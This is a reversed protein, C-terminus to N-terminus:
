IGGAFPNNTRTVSVEDEWREGNLWTSPHPIYQPDKWHPKQQEISHLMKKLLDDTPKLKDFVKKAFGKNTKRPYAKWFLDFNDKQQVVLHQIVSQKNDTRTLDTRTLPGSTGSDPLGLGQNEPEPQYHDADDYVYWTSEWHGLKNQSKVLQMYGFEQLENLVNRIQDRGVDFERALSDSNTRWNDPRSLLRVLLGLGRMSLRSDRCVENSLVTFNRDKRPSRVITMLLGM